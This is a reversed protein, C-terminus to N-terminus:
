HNHQFSRNQKGVQDISAVHPNIREAPTQYGSSVSSSPLEVMDEVPMNALDNFAEYVLPRHGPRSGPRTRARCWAPLRVTRYDRCADILEGPGTGVRADPILRGYEQEYQLDRRARNAKHM